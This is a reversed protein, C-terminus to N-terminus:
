KPPFNDKILRYFSASLLEEPSTAFQQAKAKVLVLCENTAALIGLSVKKSKGLLDRGSSSAWVKSHRAGDLVFTNLVLQNAWLLKSVFSFGDQVDLLNRQVLKFQGNYVAELVTVALKDDSSEVSQLVDAIHDPGLMKPKKSLGEYSQQLSEMLNALTRMEQCSRAVNKLLKRDEDMVYSMKEGKAIRTAQKLLESPTHPSLVFPSCRNAFAKGTGSQFKSPEMSCLIWLTAKSPEELSKLLADAAVKNSVINQAEDICIIRKKHQPKFKSQQIMQRVDDITRASGGDIELYDRTGDITELGNAAAAFARALTTKGAASPGFFAIASPYKNSAVIGKLRTVVAEHGVIDDLNRPRYKIHLATM